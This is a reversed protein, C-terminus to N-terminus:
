RHNESEEKLRKHAERKYKMVALYVVQMDIKAQELAERYAKLRSEYDKQIEAVVKNTCFRSEDPQRDDDPQCHCHKGDVCTTMDLVRMKEVRKQTM